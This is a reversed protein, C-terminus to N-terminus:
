DVSRRRTVSDVQEEIVDGKERPSTWSTEALQLRQWKSDPVSNVTSSPLVHFPRIPMSQLSLGQLRSACDKLRRIPADIPRFTPYGRTGINTLDPTGICLRLLRSDVSTALMVDSYRYGFLACPPILTSM